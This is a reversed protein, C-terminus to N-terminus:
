LSLLFVSEDIRQFLLDSLKSTIKELEFAGRTILIGDVTIDSHDPVSYDILYLRFGFLILVPNVVILNSNIYILFIMVGFILAIIIDLNYMGEFINFLTRLGATSIVSTLLYSMVESSGNSIKSITIAAKNDQTM